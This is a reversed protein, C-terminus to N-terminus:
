SGAQSDTETRQPFAAELTARMRDLEEASRREFMKRIWDDDPHHFLARPNDDPCKLLAALPYLNAEAPLHGAFWRSVTSPEVRLDRAIDAQSLGRREAWEVIFHLRRPTKGAHINAPRGM